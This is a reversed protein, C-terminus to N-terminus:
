PIRVKYYQKECEELELEKHCAVSEASNESHTTIVTLTKIKPKKKRKHEEVFVNLRKKADSPFYLSDKPFNPDDPTSDRVYIPLFSPAFQDVGNIRIGVVEVPASVIPKKGTDYTACGKVPEENFCNRRITLTKAIKHGTLDGTTYLKTSFGVYLIDKKKDGTVLNGVPPLDDGQHNVAIAVIQWKGVSDPPLKLLASVSSSPLLFSRVFELSNVLDTELDKKTDGILPEANSYPVGKRRGDVGSVVVAGLILINVATLANNNVSYSSAKRVTSRGSTTQQSTYGLRRQIKGINIIYNEDAPNSNMEQCGFFLTTCVLSVGMVYLVIEQRSIYKKIVGM